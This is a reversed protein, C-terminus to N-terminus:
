LAVHVRVHHQVVEVLVRLHLVRKADDHDRQHIAGRFHEREPLHDKVIQLMLLGDDRPARLVVKVPRQRAAM